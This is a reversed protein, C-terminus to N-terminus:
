RGHERLGGLGGEVLASILHPVKGQQTSTLGLSGLATVVQGTATVRAQLSSATLGDIETLTATPLAAPTGAVSTALATYATKLAPSEAQLATQETTLDAVLASNGSLTAAQTADLGVFAAVMQLERTALQAPTPATTSTGSAFGRPGGFGGRNQAFLSISMLAPIILSKLTM